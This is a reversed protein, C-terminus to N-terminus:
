ETTNSVASCGLTVTSSFFFFSGKFFRDVEHAWLRRTVFYLLYSPKEGLSFISLRLSFFLFFLSSYGALRLFFFEREEECSPM